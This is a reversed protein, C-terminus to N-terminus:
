ATTLGSGPAAATSSRLKSVAASDHQEATTLNWGVQGHSKEPTGPWDVVDLAAIQPGTPRVAALLLVESIHWNAPLQRSARVFRGGVTGGSRAM